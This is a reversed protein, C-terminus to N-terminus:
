SNDCYVEVPVTAVLMRGSQENLAGWGYSTFADVKVSTTYTTLNDAVTRSELCAEVSNAHTGSPSLYADMTDQARVVGSQTDVWIELMFNYRVSCSPHGLWFGGADPPPTPYVIVAVPVHVNEDFTDYARLPAALTALRTQIYDRMTGISQAAM